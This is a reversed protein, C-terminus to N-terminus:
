FHENQIAVLLLKSDSVISDPLVNRLHIIVSSINLSTNHSSDRRMIAVFFLSDIVVNKFVVLFDFVGSHIVMNSTRVVSM